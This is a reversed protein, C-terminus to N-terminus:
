LNYGGLIYWRNSTGSGVAANPVRQGIIEISVNTSTFTISSSIGEFVDVGGSTSLFWPNTGISGYADKFVFYPAEYPSSTLSEIPPLVFVKSTTRLDAFIIPNSGSVNVITTGPTPESVYNSFTGEYNNIINYINTPNEMLSICSYTNIFNSASTAPYLFVQTSCFIGFTNSAFPVTPVGKITLFRGEEPSLATSKTLVADKQTFDVTNLIMFTTNKNVVEGIGFSM